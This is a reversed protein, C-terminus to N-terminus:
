QVKGKMKAYTLIGAGALLVGGIIFLAVPWGVFQALLIMAGVAVFSVGLAAVLAAAIALALVEAAKQTPLVVKDKVVAGAEQRVYDVFLQVLETVADIITGRKPNEETQPASM